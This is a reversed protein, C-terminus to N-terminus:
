LLVLRLETRRQPGSERGLHRRRDDGRAAAHARRVGDRTDHGLRRIHRARQAQQLSREVARRRLLLGLTLACVRRLRGVRRILADDDLQRHEGRPGIHQQCAVRLPIQPLRQLGVQVAERRAPQGRQDLVRADLQRGLDEEHELADAVLSLGLEEDGRARHKQRRVLVAPARDQLRQRRELWLLDPLHAYLRGAAARREHQERQAELRQVVSHAVDVCGRGRQARQRDHQARGHESRVKHVRRLKGLQDALELAQHLHVALPKRLHDQAQKHLQHLVKRRVEEALAARQHRDAVRAVELERPQHELDCRPVHGREAHRRGRRRARGVRDRKRQRREVAKRQQHLLRRRLEHAVVRRQVQAHQESHELVRHQRGRLQRRGHAARTRQQLVQHLAKLALRRCQLLHRTGHAARQQREKVNHSPRARGHRACLIQQERRGDERGGRGHETCM